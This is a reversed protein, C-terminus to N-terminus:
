YIYYKAWRNMSANIFDDASKYHEVKGIAYNFEFPIHLAKEAFHLNLEVMEAVGFATGFHSSPKHTNNFDFGGYHSQGVYGFKGNKEFYLWKFPHAESVLVTFGNLKLVEAFEKLKQINDM